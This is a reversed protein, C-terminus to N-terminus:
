HRLDIITVDRYEIRIGYFPEQRVASSGRDLYGLVDSSQCCATLSVVSVYLAALGIAMRSGDFERKRDHAVVPLGNLHKLRSTFGDPYRHQPHPVCERESEVIASDACIVALATNLVKLV